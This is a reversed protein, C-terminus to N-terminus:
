ETVRICSVLPDIYPIKLFILSPCAALIQGLSCVDLRKNDSNYSASIYEFHRLKPLHSVVNAMISLDMPLETDPRNARDILKLVEIQQSLKPSGIIQIGLAPTGSFEQLSPFLHDFMYCSNSMIDCRDLHDENFAITQLGPHKEFFRYLSGKKAYFQDWNITYSGRIKLKQLAPFYCGLPGFFQDSQLKERGKLFWIGLSVLGPSSNM